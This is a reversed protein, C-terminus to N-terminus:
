KRLAQKKAGVLNANANSYSLGQITQNFFCPPPFYSFSTVTTSDTKKKHVSVLQALVITPSYM